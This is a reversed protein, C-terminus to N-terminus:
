MARRSNSLAPKVEEASQAALQCRLQRDTSKAAIQDAQCEHTYETHELILKVLPESIMKSSPHEMDAMSVPNRLGLGGLRTPLAFLNCDADNPPTKLLQLHYSLNPLTRSLYSWKSLLRHTFAVFTAHPQTTAIASLLRVESTWQDVREAVFQDTYSPTGLAAGLHPRGACTINVNTSEFASIADAHCEEKTVLWTKSPTPYYGYGPGLRALEDRLDATPGLATTDDAYWVQTVSEPLRKILPFTAVAYM